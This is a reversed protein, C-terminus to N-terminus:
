RTYMKIISWISIGILIIALGWRFCTALPNLPEMDMTFTQGGMDSGWVEITPLNFTIVPANNTESPWIEKFTDIADFAVFATKFRGAANTLGDMSVSASLPKRETEDKPITEPMPEPDPKTEPDDTIQPNGAIDVNTTGAEYHTTSEGVSVYEPSLEPNDSNLDVGSTTTVKISGDSQPKELRMVINGDSDQTVYTVSGDPNLTKTYKMGNAKDIATVSKGNKAFILENGNALTEKLSGDPMQTVSGGNSGPAGFAYNQTQAQAQVPAVDGWEEVPSTCECKDYDIGIIKGTTSTAMNCETESNRGACKRECDKRLWDCDKCNGTCDENNFSAVGAIGCKEVLEEYQSDCSQNCEGTCNEYDWTGLNVGWFGCLNELLDIEQDCTEKCEYECSESNVPEKNIDMGLSYCESRKQAFEEDCSKCDGTCTLTDYFQLGKGSGSCFAKMQKYTATNLDDDPTEECFCNGTCTQDDWNEVQGESGCELVKLQYEDYCPPLCGDPETTRPDGSNMDVPYKHSGYFIQGVQHWSGDEWWWNKVILRVYYKGGPPVTVDYSSKVNGDSDIWTRATDISYDYSNTAIYGSMEDLDIQLYTCDGPWGAFSSTCTFLLLLNIYAIIRKYMMLIRSDDPISLNRM